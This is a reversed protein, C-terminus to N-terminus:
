IKEALKKLRLSLPLILLGAALNGAAHLLDFPFGVVIWSIMGEFGLHYFFAQVPACLAGYALGHLACVAPYVVMALGKPMRRPLLMTVGWLITWTYLYPVWWEYFAAYIGMLLVFVYIPILAKARFVITYLMVLTGILHINPLAEMILKSCFMLTGLM